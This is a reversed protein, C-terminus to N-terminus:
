GILARQEAPQPAKGVAADSKVLSDFFDAAENDDAPIPPTPNSTRERSYQREMNEVKMETARKQLRKQIALVKPDSSPHQLTM